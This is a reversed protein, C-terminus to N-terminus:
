PYVTSSINSMFTKGPVLPLSTSKWHQLTFMRLFLLSNRGHLLQRMSHPTPDVAGGQEGISQDWEARTSRWTPRRRRRHPAPHPMLSGLYRMVWFCFSVDKKWICMKLMHNMITETQKLKRYIIIYTCYINYIYVYIIYIYIYVYIYHNSEGFNQPKNRM